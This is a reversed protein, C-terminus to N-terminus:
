NQMVLPWELFVHKMTRLVCSPLSILSHGELASQLYNYITRALGSAHAEQSWMQAHAYRNVRVANALRLGTLAGTFLEKYQSKGTDLLVGPEKKLWVAYRPDAHLMALAQAAEDIRIRKPDHGADAAGAKYLYQLGLV